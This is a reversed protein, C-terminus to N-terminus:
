EECKMSVSKIPKEPITVESISILKRDALELKVRKGVFPVIKDYYKSNLVEYESGFHIVAGYSFLEVKTVLVEPYVGYNLFDLIGM